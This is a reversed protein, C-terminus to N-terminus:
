GLYFLFNVSKGRYYLSVMICVVHTLVLSCYHALPDNFIVDRPPINDKSRENHGCLRGWAFAPPLPYGTDHITDNMDIHIPEHHADLRRVNSVIAALDSRYALM